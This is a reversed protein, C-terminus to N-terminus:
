DRTWNIRVKEENKLYDLELFGQYANNLADGIRRAMHHGTTEVRLGEENPTVSMLRELPHREKELREQNNILAEIEDKHEQYFGGSIQVIGAPVRDNTRKCAPCMDENVPDPAIEWTWRGKLFVAKCQPCRTPDPLKQRSEYPDIRGDSYMKGRSPMQPLNTPAGNPM